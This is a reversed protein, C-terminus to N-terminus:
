FWVPRGWDPFVGEPYPGPLGFPDPQPLTPSIPQYDPMYVKM